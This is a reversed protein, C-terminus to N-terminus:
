KFWIRQHSRSQPHAILAVLAIDFMLDILLSFQFTSGTAFFLFYLVLAVRASSAVLALVYGWKFENAIGFAGAGIGGILLFGIPSFLGGGILGFVVNVYCLMQANVLTQPLNRNFWQYKSNM